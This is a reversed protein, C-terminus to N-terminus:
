NIRSAWPCIGEEVTHGSGIKKVFVVAADIYMGLFGLIQMLVSGFKSLLLVELHLCQSVLNNPDDESFASSDDSDLYPEQTDEEEESFYEYRQPFVDDDLYVTGKRAGDIPPPKVDNNNDDVLYVTYVHIYADPTQRTPRKKRVHRSTNRTIQNQNRSRPGGTTKTNSSAADIPTAASDPAPGGNETNRGRANSREGETKATNNPRHRGPEITGTSSRLLHSM